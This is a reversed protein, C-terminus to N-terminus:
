TRHYRMHPKRPFTGELNYADTTSEHSMMGTLQPWEYANVRQSFMKMLPYVYMHTLTVFAAM